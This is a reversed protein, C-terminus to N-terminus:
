TITTTHSLEDTSYGYVTDCISFGPSSFTPIQAQFFFHDVLHNMKETRKEARKEICYAVVTYFGKYQYIYEKM